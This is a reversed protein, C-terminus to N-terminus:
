FQKNQTSVSKTFTKGNPLACTEPDTERIPNGAEVCEDFSNVNANKLASERDQGNSRMLAIAGSLGVLAVVFCAILIITTSSGLQSNRVKM